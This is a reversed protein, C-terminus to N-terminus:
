LVVEAGAPDTNLDLEVGWLYWGGACLLLLVVAAGLGLMKGSHWKKPPPSIDRGITGPPRSRPAAPNPRTPTLTSVLPQPSAPSRSIPRASFSPADTRPFLRPTQTQQTGVPSGCASCFKKGPRVATGCKLCNVSSGVVQAPAPAVAGLSAGCNGCFKKGESVEVRCSHCIM